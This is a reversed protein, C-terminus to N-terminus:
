PYCGACSISQSINSRVKFVPRNEPTSIPQESQDNSTARDRTPPRFSLGTAPGYVPRKGNKSYVNTLDNGNADVQGAVIHFDPWTGSVINGGDDEMHLDYKWLWFKVKGAGCRDGAPTQPGIFNTMIDNIVASPPSTFQYTRLALGACNYNHVPISSNYSSYSSCRTGGGLTQGQIPIKRSLRGESQQIVHTLEHALLRQGELSEPQYQSRAFFINDGLTFARANVERTLADAQVDSHVRVSSFDWGFRSEMFSQNPTPLAEGGRHIAQQLSQEFQPSVAGTEGTASRQVEESPSAESPEAGSEEGPPYISDAMDEPRMVVRYVKPQVGQSVHGVPRTYGAVVFDAVRDAEQEYKDGPESIKLKTQIGLEEKCRPCGGGCACKRQLVPM